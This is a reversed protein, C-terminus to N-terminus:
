CVGEGKNLHQKECDEGQAERGGGSSRVFVGSAKPLVVGVDGDITRTAARIHDRDTEAIWNM